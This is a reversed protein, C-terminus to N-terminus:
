WFDYFWIWFPTIVLRRLTYTWAWRNQVRWPEDTQRWDLIMKLVIIRNFDILNPSKISSLPKLFNSM